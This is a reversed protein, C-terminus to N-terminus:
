LAVGERWAQRVAGTIVEVDGDSLCRPDFQVLGEALRHARVHIAPSGAQLEAALARARPEALRIALREIPRGAEDRVRVLAIGALDSLSAEIADLLRMQRERETAGDREGYEELAAVLGAVQEKGVKMARAIGRSQARCWSVYPERGAIFGSVPAGVAKTGSYIALGAGLRTYARLDEEAACDMVFPLGREIAAGLCTELPLSANDRTHHSQVWLFCASDPGFAAELDSEVMSARSGVPRVVGGGLAVMQGVTAGFDILHGAQVVVERRSVKVDPVQRVLAAEGRTVCAAVAIAIGAAAGATVFASEADCAGAILSEAEALLTSMDVFERGARDMAERVGPSLLSGGLASLHGAANVVRTV